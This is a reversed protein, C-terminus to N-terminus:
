ELVDSTEPDINNRELVGQIANFQRNELEAGPIRQWDAVIKIPKQFDANQEIDQLKIFEFIDTSKTKVKDRLTELLEYRDSYKDPITYINKDTLRLQFFLKSERDYFFKKQVDSNSILGAWLFVYIRDQKWTSM